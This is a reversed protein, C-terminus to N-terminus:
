QFNIRATAVPDPWHAGTKWHRLLERVRLGFGPDGWQAAKSPSLLPGSFTGRPLGPRVLLQPQAGWSPM